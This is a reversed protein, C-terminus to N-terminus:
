IGGDNASSSKSGVPDRRQSDPACSSAWGWSEHAIDNGNFVRMRVWYIEGPEPHSFVEVTDWAEATPPLVGSTFKSGISQLTEEPPEHKVPFSAGRKPADPYVLWTADVEARDIAQSRYSLNKLYLSVEFICVERDPYWRSEVEVESHLNTALRPLVNLYFVTVAWAGAIVIAVIQVAQTAQELRTPQTM